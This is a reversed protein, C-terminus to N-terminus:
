GDFIADASAVTAALTLWADLQETNTCATIRSRTQESVALGRSELVLLLAKAEGEARGQLVYRKAFDSIYADTSVGMEDELAECVAESLYALLAM